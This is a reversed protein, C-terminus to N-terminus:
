QLHDSRFTGSTVSIDIDDQEGTFNFSGEVYDSTISEIMIKGSSPSFNDIGIVKSTYFIKYKGASSDSTVSYDGITFGIPLRISISEENESENGNISISASKVTTPSMFDYKAGNATFRIYTDDDALADDILEKVESCSYFVFFLSLLSLLILFKTKKM